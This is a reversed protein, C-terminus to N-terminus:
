LNLTFIVFCPSLCPFVTQFLIMLVCVSNHCSHQFKWVPSKFYSNWINLARISFTSLMCLFFISFLVLYFLFLSISVRFIYIFSISSILFETISTFFAKLLSMLLSSMALSLFLVSSSIAISVEGVSFYFVFYYIFLVPSKLVSLYYWFICLPIVSLM